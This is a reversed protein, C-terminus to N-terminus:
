ARALNVRQWGGEDLPVVSRVVYSTANITLPQDAVVSAAGPRMTFSPERQIEGTQDSIFGQAADFVIPFPDGVLPTAIANALKGFVAANVKAELAEFGM